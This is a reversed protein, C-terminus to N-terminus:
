VSSRYLHALAGIEAANYQPTETDKSTETM